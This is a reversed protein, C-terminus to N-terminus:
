PFTVAGSAHGPSVGGDHPRSQLLWIRGRDRQSRPRGRPDNRDRTWGEGYLTNTRALGTAAKFIRSMHRISVGVQLAIEELRLDKNLSVDIYDAM